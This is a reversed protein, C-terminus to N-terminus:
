NVSAHSKGTDVLHIKFKKIAVIDLWEKSDFPMTKLPTVDHDSGMGAKAKQNRTYPSRSRSRACPKRIAQLDALALFIRRSGTLSIKIPLSVMVIRCEIGVGCEPDPKSRDGLSM